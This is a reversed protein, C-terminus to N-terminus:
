QTTTDSLNFCKSVTIDEMAKVHHAEDMNSDNDSCHHKHLLKFISQVSEQVEKMIMKHLENKEKQKQKKSQM